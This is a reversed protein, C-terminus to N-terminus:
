ILGSMGLLPLGSFIGKMSNTLTLKEMVMGTLIGIGILTCVMPISLGAMLSCLSALAVKLGWEPLDDIYPMQSYLCMVLTINENIFWYGLWLVGICICVVVPDIVMPVRGLADALGGRAPGGGISAFVMYLITSVYGSVVETIGERITKDRKSLGEGDFVELLTKPAMGILLTSLISSMWLSGDLIVKYRGEIAEIVETPHPKSKTNVKGLSLVSILAGMAMPVGTGKVVVVALLLYVLCGLSYGIRQGREMKAITIGQVVIILMVSVAGIIATMSAVIHPGGGIVFAIGGVGIPLCMLVSGMGIARMTKVVDKTSRNAESSMAKVVTGILELSGYTTMVVLFLVGPIVGTQVGVVLAITVVVEMAPIYTVIVRLVIGIFLGILTLM